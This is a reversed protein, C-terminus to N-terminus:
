LLPRGAALVTQFLDVPPKRWLSTDGQLGNLAHYLLQKPARERNLVNANAYRALVQLYPGPKSLM